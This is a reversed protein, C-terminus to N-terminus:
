TVWIQGNKIISLEKGELIFPVDLLNPLRNNIIHRFSVFLRALMLVVSYETAYQDCVNVAYSSCNPAPWCCWIMPM